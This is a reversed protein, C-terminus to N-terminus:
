VGRGMDKINLQNCVEKIMTNIDISKITIDNIIYRYKNDILDIVEKTSLRNPPIISIHGLAERQEHRRFCENPDCKIYIYVIRTSQEISAITKYFFPTVGTSEYITLNNIKIQNTLIGKSMEDIWEFSKNPHANSLEIRYEDINIAKYDPLFRNILRCLTSKGSAINGYVALCIRENQIPNAINFDIPHNIINRSYIGMQERRTKRKHHRDCLSQWNNQDWAHGGRSIPIIHDVCTAPEPRGDNMCEVCLPNARRHRISAQTWRATSYNFPKAEAKPRPKREREWRM